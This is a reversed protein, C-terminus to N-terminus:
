RLTPENIKVNNPAIGILKASYYHEYFAPMLLAINDHDNIFLREPILPMVHDNTLYYNEIM